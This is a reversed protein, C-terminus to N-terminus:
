KIKSREKSFTLWIIFPLLILIIIIKNEDALLNNPLTFITIVTGLISFLQTNLNKLLLFYTDRKITVIEGVDKINLNGRISVPISILYEIENKDVIGNEKLLHEINEFFLVKAKVKSTLSKIVIKEGEEIGLVKCNDKSIRVIKNSEDIGYSRCTRLSIPKIGIFFDFIFNSNFEFKRKIPYVEFSGFHRKFLLSTKYYDESTSPNLEYSNNTKKHYLNRFHPENKSFSEFEKNTAIFPIEIGLLKRQFYNLFVFDSKRIEIKLIKLVFQINKRRNIILIKKPKGLSLWLKDSVICEDQKLITEFSPKLYKSLVPEKKILVANINQFNRKDFEQKTIKLFPLKSDSVSVGKLQYINKFDNIRDIYYFGDKSFDDINNYTIELRNHPKIKKSKGVLGIILDNNIVPKIYNVFSLISKFVKKFNQIKKLDRYNKNIEIQISSINHTSSVWKPNTYDQSAIFKQNLVVNKINNLKLFELLSFEINKHNIINLGNNTGIEVDFGYENKCGHIEIFLKIDNKKVIESIKKRYLIDSNTNSEITGVRYICHTNSFRSILKALSGTFFEPVKIKGLINVHEITHPASILVPYKGKKVIYNKQPIGKYNTSSFERELIQTILKSIM